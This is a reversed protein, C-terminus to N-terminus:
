LVTDFADALHRPPTHASFAMLPAPACATAEAPPPNPPQTADTTIIIDRPTCCAFRTDKFWLVLRDFGPENDECIFHTPADVTIIEIPPDPPTQQGEHYMYLRFSCPSEDTGLCYLRIRVFWPNGDECSRVTTQLEWSECGNTTQGAELVFPEDEFGPCDPDIFLNLGGPPLNDFCETCCFVDRCCCEPNTIIKGGITGIRGNRRIWAM